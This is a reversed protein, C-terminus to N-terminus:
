GKPMIRATLALLLQSPAYFGWVLRPHPTVFYGWAVLLDCCIFLVLGLLYLKGCFSPQAREIKWALLVHCFFLLGYGVGLLVLPLLLAAPLLLIAQWPFARQRLNCLYALQALLFFAVGAGYAGTFLLFYDGCLTFLAAIPLGWWFSLLFCFVIWLFCLQEM